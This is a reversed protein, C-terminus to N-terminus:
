RRVGVTLTYAGSGWAPQVLIYYTGTVLGPVSLSEDPGGSESAAIPWGPPDGYLYLDLNAGDPGDLAASLTFPGSCLHVRYWDSDGDWEATGRACSFVFPTADTHTDNPEREAGECTPPPPTGGESRIVLPLFCRPPGPPTPPPPTPGTGPLCDDGQCAVPPSLALGLALALALAAGTLLVFATARKM